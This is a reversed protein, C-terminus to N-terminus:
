TSYMARKENTIFQNKLLVHLYEITICLMLFFWYVKIKQDQGEAGSPGEPM